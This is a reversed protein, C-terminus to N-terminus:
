EETGEVPQSDTEGGSRSSGDAPSKGAKSILFDPPRRLRPRGSEREWIVELYALHEDMAADIAQPDGATIARLTREHMEIVRRPEVPTRLAMDRAIEVRRLLSRTLEVVVHNRTARAIALHFRTDLLRVRERDGAAARQRELIEGLEELDQEDAYMGALQAVRPELLRRAELVQAVEGIRLESRRELVGLPIKESVVTLAGDLSALVGAERLVRLAERLTPRSIEMTTALVRESPLRDGVGFDGARIAEAIQSVAEEFSRRTRVPGIATARMGM